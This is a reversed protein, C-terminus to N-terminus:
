YQRQIGPLYSVATGAEISGLEVFGRAEQTINYIEQPNFDLKDLILYLSENRKVRHDVVSLSDVQVGFKDYTFTKSRDAATDAKSIASPAAAATKKERKISM